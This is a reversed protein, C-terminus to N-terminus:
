RTTSTASPARLSRAGRTVATASRRRGRASSAASRACSSRRTGAAWSAPTWTSRGRWSTSPCRCRRRRACRPVRGGSGWTSSCCTAAWRSASRASRPTPERGRLHRLVASLDATDGAHYFRLARNPEGSCSRFNMAVARLGCEALARCSELMYSSNASGELGHVLLVLPAGAPLAIGDVTAWDLDVFDGDETEMRERRYHVGTRQRLYRGAVTQGHAGPLWRAPRFPRPAFAKAPPPETRDPENM